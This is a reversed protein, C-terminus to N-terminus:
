TIDKVNQSEVKQNHPSIRPLLSVGLKAPRGFPVEWNLLNRPFASKGFVNIAM